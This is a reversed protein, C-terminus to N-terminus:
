SGYVHEPTIGMDIFTPAGYATRLADKWHAYDAFAGEAHPAFTAWQAIAAPVGGSLMASAHPTGTLAFLVERVLSLDLDKAPVAGPATLSPFLRLTSRPLAAPRADFPTCFEWGLLRVAHFEPAIMVTEPRIGGHVNGSWRLWCAINMLGSIIWACTRADFPGHHRLLDRLPLEDPRRPFTHMVRGDDLVTVKPADPLFQRMQKEMAADAFRFANIVDTEHAALDADDATFVRSVSRACVLVEASEDSFTSVPRLGFGRGDVRMFTRPPPVSPPRPADAARLRSLLAIVEPARPDPNIDPHWIRILKGIEKRLNTGFQKEAQTRTLRMIEDYTM